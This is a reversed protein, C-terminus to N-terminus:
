VILQEHMDQIGQMEPPMIQAEQSMQQAQMQEAKYKKIAEILKQKNKIYGDPISELYLIADPIIQRDMLNDLTQVQTLESWYSSGGIDVKIRHQADKLEAFDFPAIVTASVYEGTMADPITVTQKVAREGYYVAMYEVMVRIVDEVLQYYDLKQLDLPQSAARQVAVIASTNDPKVNGLAADFVGLSDKTKQVTSDVLQIAQQNMSSNVHNSFIADNPNGNVAIAEGVKNSYRGIKSADYLVKPFAFQKQYEMSMAYIKNIFIQNEIKGTIPSVGHYSNKVQEWSMWALPYLEIDLSWEEKVLGKKTTKLAKVIGEEKWFKLLVTTYENGNDNSDVNTYYESNDDAEIDDISLDNEKAEEKVEETLRRQAIIIYPQGQVDNLCQNGFIINTNDIVETEIAGEWIQGETYDPNWYVYICTDGDVACAKLAQRTKYSMKTKELIKEIENSLISEIRDTEKDGTDDLKDISVGIDDSVLMSVYYNVAPKLINFVPKALDPAKVGIWQKDNYFNNNRKVNEFLDIGSKYSIGTEYERWIQEPAKKIMM